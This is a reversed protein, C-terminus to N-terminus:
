VYFLIPNDPTSTPDAKKKKKKKKKKKMETGEAELTKLYNDIDNYNKLAALAQSLSPPWLQPEKSVTSDEVVTISGIAAIDLNDPCGQATPYIAISNCNYPSLISPHTDNNSQHDTINSNYYYLCHSHHSEWTEPDQPSHSQCPRKKKNSQKVAASSLMVPIKAALSPPPVDSLTSTSAPQIVSITLYPSPTPFATLPDPQTNPPPTAPQSATKPQPLPPPPPITSSDMRSNVLLTSSPDSQSATLTPHLVTTTDALLTSALDLRTWKALPQLRRRCCRGRQAHLHGKPTVILTPAHRHGQLPRQRQNIRNPLLYHPPGVLQLPKTSTTPPLRSSLFNLLHSCLSCATALSPSQLHSQTAKSLLPILGRDASYRFSNALPASSVLPPHSPNTRALLLHIVEELQQICTEYGNTTQHFPKQLRGPNM